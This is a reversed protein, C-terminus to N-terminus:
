MVVTYCLGQTMLSSFTMLRQYKTAKTIFLEIEVNQLVSCVIIHNKFCSCNSIPSQVIMFQRKRIEITSKNLKIM